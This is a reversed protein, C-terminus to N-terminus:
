RTLIAIEEGIEGYQSVEIGSECTFLLQCQENETSITNMFGRFIAYSALTANRSLDSEQLVNSTSRKKKNGGQMEMVFDLVALLFALFAFIAFNDQCGSSYM